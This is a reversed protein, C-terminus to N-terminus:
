LEDPVHVLPISRLRISHFPEFSQFDEFPHILRVAKELSQM